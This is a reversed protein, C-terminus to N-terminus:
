GSPRSSALALNAGLGVVIAASLLAHRGVVASGILEARGAEEEARTHRVVLLTSMLGAATAGLLLLQSAVVAGLSTGSVLGNLALSAASAASTRALEVLDADTPYLAPVSSASTVLLITLAGVWISLKVRDRRLALRVLRATGTFQGSM